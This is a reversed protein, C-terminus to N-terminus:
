IGPFHSSQLLYPLKWCSLRDLFLLSTRLPLVPKVGAGHTVASDMMHSLDCDSNVKTQLNQHFGALLHCGSPASPGYSPPPASLADSFELHGSGEGGPSLYASFSPLLPWQPSPSEARLSCPSLSEEPNAEKVPPDSPGPLTVPPVDPSLHCGPVYSSTCSLTFGLM